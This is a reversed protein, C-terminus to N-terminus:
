DPNNSCVIESDDTIDIFESNEWFKLEINPNNVKLTVIKSTETMSPNFLTLLYKDENPIKPCM